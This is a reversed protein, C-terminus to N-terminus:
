YWVYWVIGLLGAVSFPRVFYFHTQISDFIFHKLPRAM